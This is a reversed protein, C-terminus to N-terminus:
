GGITGAGSRPRSSRAAARRAGQDPDPPCQNVLTLPVCVNGHGGVTNGCCTDIACVFGPPCSHNPGCAQLGTCSTSSPICYGGFDTTVCVCDPNLSTCMQFSGCTAGDCAEIPPPLTTTTTTTTSSTTSSTTTTTPSPSGLAGAKDFFSLAVPATWAVGVGIGLKRLADRRSNASREDPTIEDM